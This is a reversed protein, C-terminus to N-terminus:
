IKKDLLQLSWIMGQWTRSAEASTNMHVGPLRARLVATTSLTCSGIQGTQESACATTCTCPMPHTDAASYCPCSCPIGKFGVPWIWARPNSYIEGKEEWWKESKSTVDTMELSMMVKQVVESQFRILTYGLIYVAGTQSTWLALIRLLNPIKHIFGWVSRAFVSAPGPPNLSACWVGWSGELQGIHGYMM